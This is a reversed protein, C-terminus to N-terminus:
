CLGEMKGVAPKSDSTKRLLVLTMDDMQRAQFANVADIVTKLIQDVAQHAHRFILRELRELGYLEGDSSEAEVIGDTFLVLLDGETVTLCRDRIFDGIDDVIGMWTGQTPVTEIRNERARYLLLDHHKGALTVRDRDLKLAVLTMHHDAGMRSINERIVANVKRLVASPSLDPGDNVISLISTQAMMMILGADVGHGSVDGVTVWKGGGDTEIIDYYDGGVEQAPVMMAAIEFGALGSRVPLLATQIRKALEMESWLADRAEKLQVLLNFEQRVHRHKVYNISVAIFGTASLFFLNNTMAAVSYPLGAALNLGVYLAIIIGANISSHVASWPLLLNVAIIVLNLGAYYPSNFGGLAVTMLAITGGVNVSLLHGHLYSLPGPRSWRIVFFHAVLLGTSILRYVALRPLVERPLIFYDLIFFIPVLTFGLAALTKLWQHIISRVYDSFRGTVVGIRQFRRREGRRRCGDEDRRWSMM